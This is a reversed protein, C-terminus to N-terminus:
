GEDFFFEYWEKWHPKSRVRAEKTNVVPAISPSPILVVREGPKLLFLKNRAEQEVFAPDKVRALEKKLRKNEEEQAVLEKKAQEIVSNKQSLNLISHILNNIIFLAIVMSIFFLLKKM